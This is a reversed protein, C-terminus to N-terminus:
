ETQELTSSAAVNQRKERAWLGFFLTFIGLYVSLDAINFVPFSGISFFDTVFGDPIRDVLNGLAGGLFFAMSVRILRDEKAIRPFYAIIGISIILPIIKLLEGLGALLGGAVGANRWHVIRAYESLWFDPIFIHGLLLNERVLHKTWSDLAVILGAILFLFLYDLVTKKLNPEM